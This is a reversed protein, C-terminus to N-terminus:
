RVIRILAAVGLVAMMVIALAHLADALLAAPVFGPMADAMLTFALSTVATGMVAAFWGPAMPRIYREM